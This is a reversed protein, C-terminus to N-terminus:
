AEKILLLCVHAAKGLRLDVCLHLGCPQAAGEPLSDVLECLQRDEFLLHCAIHLVTLRVEIHYSIQPLFFLFFFDCVLGCTCVSTCLAIRVQPDVASSPARRSHLSFMTYRTNTYIKIRLAAHTYPSFLLIARCTSYGQMCHHTCYTDCKKNKAIFFHFFSFSQLTNRM